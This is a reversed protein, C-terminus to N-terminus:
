VYEHASSIDLVTEISHVDWGHHLIIKAKAEIHRTFLCSQDRAAITTIKTLIPNGWADIYEGHSEGPTKIQHLLNVLLRYQTTKGNIFISKEKLVTRSRGDGFMGNSAHRVTIVDMAHASVLIKTFLGFSLDCLIQTTKTKRYM